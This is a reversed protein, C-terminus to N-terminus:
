RKRLEASVADWLDEDTVKYMCKSYPNDELVVRKHDTGHKSLFEDVAKLNRNYSCFYVVDDFAIQYERVHNGNGYNYNLFLNSSIKKLHARAEEEKKISGLKTKESRKKDYVVFIVTLVAFIMAWRRSGVCTEFGEEPYSMTVIDIVFGIPNDFVLLSTGEVNYMNIYGHVLSSLAIAFAMITIMSKISFADTWHPLSLDGKKQYRSKLFLLVAMIILIPGIILDTENVILGVGVVLMIATLCGM